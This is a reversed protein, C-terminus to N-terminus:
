LGVSFSFMQKRDGKRSIVPLALDFRLNGIPSPWRLAMGLSVRPAAKGGLLKEGPVLRSKDISFASGAEVYLSPRFDNGGFYGGSQGVLEVRATYYYAGGVSARIGGTPASSVIKPGVGRLDFGHLSPGGLYFRDFIPAGKRGVKTIAGAEVSTAISWEEGYKIHRDFGVETKLYQLSGQYAVLKEAFRLRYGYTPNIPNDRRDFSLGITWEAQNSRRIEQCVYNTYLAADCTKRGGSLRFEERALRLGTSATFGRSFARRLGVEIGISRQEFPSAKYVDTFGLARQKMGFVTATFSARKGLFPQASFGLSGQTRLSSYSAEAAIQRGSEAFTRNVQARVRFREITSYGGSLTLGGRSLSVAPGQAMDLAVGSGDETLAESASAAATEGDELFPTPEYRAIPEAPRADGPAISQGFAPDPLILRSGPLDLPFPAGAIPM